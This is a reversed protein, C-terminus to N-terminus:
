PFMALQMLATTEPFGMMLNLNQLGQGSAGKVLNDIVSIVVARNSLRDQLTSTQPTHTHPLHYSCSHTKHPFAPSCLDYLCVVPVATANSLYSQTTGVAQKRKTGKMESPWVHARKSTPVLFDQGNQAPTRHARATGGLVTFCVVVVVVVVVVSARVHQKLERPKRVWRGRGKGRGGGGAVNLGPTSGTPRVKFVNMLCFNTGRVHRTHPVVDKDLM